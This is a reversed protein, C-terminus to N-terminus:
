IEVGYANKIKELNGAEDYETTTNSGLADILKTLRGLADYAM